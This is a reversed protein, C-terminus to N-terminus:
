DIWVWDGDENRCAVHEYRGSRGSVELQEVYRRCPYGGTTVFTALPTIAGGNGTDDNAWALADNNGHRELAEQMTEVALAVDRDTLAAYLPPQPPPAACATLALMLAASGGPRMTRCRRTM